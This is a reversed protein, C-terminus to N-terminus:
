QSKLKNYIWHDISIKGAGAITVVLYIVGYLLALEMKGFGDNAHVIFAAVLMTILLPTAAFRTGLGLILFVSCFVEAFVTLALSATVGIGIPDAFQIPDSGLLILFKGWGHSLMFAGASIRLILLVFNIKTPYSGPNFINKIM